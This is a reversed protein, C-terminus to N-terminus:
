RRVGTGRFSETNKVRRTVRVDAYGAEAFWTELEEGTLYRTVPVRLRDYVDAVVVDFPWQSHDHLPLHNVVTGVVPAKGLFRHPTHSFVRIGAALAQSFRHLQEPKMERTAGRLAGTVLRLSGQRPGYVWVSLRGNPRVLQHLSAFTAKADPVHHLVGFSYVLDFLGRKFPPHDIDGQVVHARVNGDLNHAASAVADASSDLAVVEAGYRAAFFAHRGFGAGADLVLKGMFDDPKLPSALDLFFAEHQPVAQDFKTWRHGTSPGGEVGSPLMRPIGDVIPFTAGCDRCRLSGSMVETVKGHRAGPVVEGPEWHGTWAAREEQSTVTVDLSGEGCSACALWDLLRMKM